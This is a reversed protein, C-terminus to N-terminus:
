SQIADATESFPADAPPTLFQEVAVKLDFAGQIAETITPYTGPRDCYLRLAANYLQDANLKM